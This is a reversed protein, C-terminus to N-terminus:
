FYCQITTYLAHVYSILHLMRVKTNQVVIQLHKSYIPLNSKLNIADLFVVMELRIKSLNSPENNENWFELNITLVSFKLAHTEIFHNWEVFSSGFYNDLFLVLLGFFLINRLFFIRIRSIRIINSILSIRRTFFFDKYVSITKKNNNNNYM